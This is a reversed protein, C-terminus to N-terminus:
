PLIFARSVAGCPKYCRTSFKPTIRFAMLKVSLSEKKEKRKEEILVGREDAACHLTILDIGLNSRLNLKM